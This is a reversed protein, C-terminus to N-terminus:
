GGAEPPGNLALSANYYAAEGTVERGIWAPLLAQPVTERTELEAIVLGALTGSFVDVEYIHGRHSVLHRTKEIPNGIAFREMAAADAAPIDYEFEDRLRDQKGTKLTLTAIKGDELRVRLSRDPAAFLYFQRIAIRRTVGARWADGSVLFKREVEEAMPPM